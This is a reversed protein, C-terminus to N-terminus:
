TFNVKAHRETERSEWEREKERERESEAEGGEGERENERLMLDIVLRGTNKASRDSVVKSIRM